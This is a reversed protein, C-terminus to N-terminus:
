ANKEIKIEVEEVEEGEELGNEDEVEISVAVAKAKAVGKKLYKGGRRRVPPLLATDNIYFSNLQSLTLKIDQPEDEQM